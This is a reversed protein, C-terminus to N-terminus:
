FIIDPHNILHRLEYHLPKTVIQAICKIELYLSPRRDLEVFVNNEGLQNFFPSNFCIIIATRFFM